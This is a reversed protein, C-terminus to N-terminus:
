AGTEAAVPTEVQVLTGMPHVGLCSTILEAQLLSGLLNKSAHVQPSGVWFNELGPLCQNSNLKLGGDGSFGSSVLIREFKIKELAKPYARKVQRKIKKLAAGLLEENEAEEDDIFSVWQSYQVSQENFATAPQFQGVCPGIEDQATSNLVHVALEETIASEHLLDLCVATWYPGKSLKQKARVGLIEDSLILQLNKIPGCYIFNHAQINKQGNLLISQVRGETAQVKTVLSRSLFDGTYNNFLIQTWEHPELITKLQQPSWFYSLEDYYSTSSEGFGVFPKLSGSEFTVPARDLVQPQLNTTTLLELFSIAKQALDSNPLFRLGNNMPGIATQISRNSGGFTDQADLLLINSTSRNLASAVCMGSLGSGIVVYDYVHHSSRNVKQM